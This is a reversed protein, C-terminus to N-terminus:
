QPFLQLYPTARAIQAAGTLYHKLVQAATLAVSYAAIHGLTGNALESGGNAGIQLNLITNACTANTVTGTQDAGDIYLKITAGSKTAAVHHYAGDSPVAVTSNCMDTVGAKLLDLGNTTNLRLYYANTGKNIIGRNSGSAGPKVWAELSFTDAFDLVTTGSIAREFSATGPFLIATAPDTRVPIVQGYTCTGNASTMALANASSDAPLGSAEGMKWYGVIGSEGLILVSYESM